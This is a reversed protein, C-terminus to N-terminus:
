CKEKFFTIVKLDSKRLFLGEEGGAEVSLISLFFMERGCCLSCPFPSFFPNSDDDREEECYWEQVKVPLVIRTMMKILFHYIVM